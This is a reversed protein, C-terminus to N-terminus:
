PLSSGLPIKSILNLLLLPRCLLLNGSKSDLCTKKVRCFLPTATDITQGLIRYSIPPRPRLLCTYGDDVAVNPDAGHELLFKVLDLEADDIAILLPTDGSSNRSELYDCDDRARQQIADLDGRQIADSTWDEDNNREV